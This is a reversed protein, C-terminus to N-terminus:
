CVQTKISNWAAFYTGHICESVLNDENIETMEVEVNELTHGSKGLILRKKDTKMKEIKLM